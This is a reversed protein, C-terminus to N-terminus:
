KDKKASKRVAIKQMTIENTSTPNISSSYSIFHHAHVNSATDPASTIMVSVNIDRWGVTFIVDANVTGSIGHSGAMEMKILVYRIIISSTIVHTRNPTHIAM